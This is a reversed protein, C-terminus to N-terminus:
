KNERDNADKKTRKGRYLSGLVMGWLVGMIIGLIHNEWLGCYNLAIGLLLGIGAGATIHAIYRKGQKNKVTCNVSVIALAIGTMIWPFATSLFEKM